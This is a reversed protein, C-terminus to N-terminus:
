RKEFRNNNSGLGRASVCPTDNMKNANGGTDKLPKM